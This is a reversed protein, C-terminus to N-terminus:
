ERKAVLNTVEDRILVVVFVGLPEESLSLNLESHSFPPITLLEETRFVDYSLNGYFVVYGVIKFPEPLNNVLTILVWNDVYRYKCETMYTLSRRLVYRDIMRMNTSGYEDVARLLGYITSSVIILALLLLVLGVVSSLGRDTHTAMYSGRAM